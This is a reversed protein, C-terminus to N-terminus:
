LQKGREVVVKLLYAFVLINVVLLASRMVTMRRLVEFIEWPLFSATIFLTM